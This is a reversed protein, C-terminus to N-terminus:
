PKGDGNGEQDEGADETGNGKNQLVTGAINNATNGLSSFMEAGLQTAYLKSVGGSGHHAHVDTAVPGTLTGGPSHPTKPKTKGVKKTAKPKSNPTHHSPRHRTPKNKPRSVKMRKVKPKLKTRSIRALAEEFLLVTLAVVLIIVVAYKM